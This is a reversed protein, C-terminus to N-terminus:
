AFSQSKTPNHHKVVNGVQEAIETLRMFKLLGLLVLSRKILEIWSDSWISLVKMLVVRFLVSSLNVKIQFMNKTDDM